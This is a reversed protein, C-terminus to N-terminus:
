RANIGGQTVPPFAVRFRFNRFGSNINGYARRGFSLDAGLACNQEGVLRRVGHVRLQESRPVLGHIPFARLARHHKCLDFSIAARVIGLGPFCLSRLREEFSPKLVGSAPRKELRRTSRTQCKMEPGISDFGM